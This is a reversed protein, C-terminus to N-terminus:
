VHISGHGKNQLQTKILKFIDNVVKHIDFGEVCPNYRVFTCGLKEEIARQRKLDLDKKYVHQKEDCEVAIKYESFYLDIRYQDISFQKIIKEDKFCNEITHLTVVELKECLVNLREINFHKALIFANSCRCGVVLWKLGGINVFGCRQIGGNTQHSVIRKYQSAIRGVAHRPNRIQLFNCVDKVCYWVQGDITKTAIGLPSMKSLSEDM